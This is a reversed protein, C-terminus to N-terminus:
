ASVIGRWPDSAYSEELAPPQEDGFTKSVVTLKLLLECLETSEEESIRKQSEPMSASGVENDFLSLYLNYVHCRSLRKWRLM